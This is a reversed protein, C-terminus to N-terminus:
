RTYSAVNSETVVPMEPSLAAVAPSFLHQHHDVAVTSLAGQPGFGLLVFTWWSLAPTM